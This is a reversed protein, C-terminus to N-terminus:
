IWSFHFGLIKRLGWFSGSVGSCEPLSNCDCAACHSCNQVRPSLKPDRGFVCCLDVVPLVSSPFSLRFRGSRLFHVSSRCVSTPPRPGHGLHHDADMRRIWERSGFALHAFEIVCLFRKNAVLEFCYSDLTGSRRAKIGLQNKSRLYNKM